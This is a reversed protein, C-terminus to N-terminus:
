KKITKSYFAAMFVPGLGLDVNTSRYFVRYWNVIDNGRSQPRQPISGTEMHHSRFCGRDARYPAPFGLLVLYLRNPISVM